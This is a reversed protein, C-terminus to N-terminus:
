DAACIFQKHSKNSQWTSCAVRISKKPRFESTRFMLYKWNTNIFSLFFFVVGVSFMFLSPKLYQPSETPISPIANQMTQVQCKETRIKSKKEKERCKERVVVYVFDYKTIFNPNQLLSIKRVTWHYKGHLIHCWRSFFNHTTPKLLISICCFFFNRNKKKPKQMYISTNGNSENCSAM